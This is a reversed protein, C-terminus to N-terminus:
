VLNASILDVIFHIDPRIYSFFFLWLLLLLIWLSFIFRLSTELLSKQKCVCQISLWTLILKSSRFDFRANSLLFSFSNKVCEASADPTRISAVSPIRGIKYHCVLLNILCHLSSHLLVGNLYPKASLFENLTDAFLQLSFVCVGVCLCM